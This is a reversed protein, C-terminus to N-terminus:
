IWGEGKDRRRTLKRNMFNCILHFNYVLCFIKIIGKQLYAHLDSKKILNILYHLYFTYIFVIGCTTLITISLSKFNSLLYSISM